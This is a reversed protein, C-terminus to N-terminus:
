GEHEWRKWYELVDIDTKVSEKEWTNSHRTFYEKIKKLAKAESIEKRSTEINGFTEGESDIIKGGTSILVEWFEKNGLLTFRGKSKFIEIIKKGAETM